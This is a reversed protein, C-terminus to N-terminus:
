FHAASSRVTHCHDIERYSTESTAFYSLLSVECMNLLPVSVYEGHHPPELLYGARIAMTKTLHDYGRTMSVSCDADQKVFPNNYRSGQLM